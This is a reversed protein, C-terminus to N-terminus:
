RRQRTGGVRRSTTMTEGRSMTDGRRGSRRKTEVAVVQDNRVEEYTGEDRTLEAKLEEDNKHDNNGRTTTMITTDGSMKTMEPPQKM